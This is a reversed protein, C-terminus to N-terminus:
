RNIFTSKIYLFGVKAMKHKLISYIREVGISFGVCPIQVNKQAFMGVLNDYRGGGAISGVGVGEDQKSSPVDIHNLVAEYIVGTYYDLGRALSLDFSIRPTIQFIDLYTFLLRLDELGRKSRENKSLEPNDLLQEILKKGGNLKVFSGIKDAVQPDLGKESVMENKVEQWPLKDLKDVASCITRFKQEPVGCVEFLGDLLMRHNVKVTFEGVELNKLVECMVRLVESDPIMPEFSGSIDYDCQYFERMRGKTMAPQDRRYVKAIHYRKMPAKCDTNLALYRAFPVTLDYRLSCKEGGQDELDYILKSDEGYKGQLIEKLEFVPTDITVAGHSKFVKTITNFIKERLAM